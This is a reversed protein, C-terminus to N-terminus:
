IDRRGEFAKGLTAKDTFELDRGVPIGQAIQSIEVGLPRLKKVLFMSTSEGETKPELALIVEGVEESKARNILKGISLDGPAVDEIPNILGGLVHYLGDYKQTSEIKTIDWPRSVVCIKSRDRQSDSCIDCKDGTSFNGCVKCRNVRTSLDKIAQSLRDVEEEDRTLLHFILREASKQGVGPLRKLEKVARELPEIM